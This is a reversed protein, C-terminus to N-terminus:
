TITLGTDPDFFHVRSVDVTLEIKQDPAAGSRPSVRAVFDTAVDDLRFHVLTESGLAEVLDVLATIRAGAPPGPHVTVDEMDEPRIGMVVPGPRLARRGDLTLRTAGFSVTTGGDGTEIVAAIMNMAPSGIFGAVFRNVPRDYLTQPMDVQQLVGKDM